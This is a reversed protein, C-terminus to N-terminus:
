EGKADLLHLCYKIIAKQRKDVEKKGQTIAGLNAKIEQYQDNAELEEAAKEMAQSASTIRGKLDLVTLAELDAMTDKGLLKELKELKNQKM